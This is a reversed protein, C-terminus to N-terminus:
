IAEDDAFLANYRRLGAIFDALAEDDWEGVRERLLNRRQADAAALGVRGADTLVLLSARKDAPDVTREVLGLEVVHQVQRSVAGKDIAYYDAVESARMTGRQRLLSLMLYAAPFLDPHVQAARHAVVRKARRMMVGIERELAQLAEDREDTM